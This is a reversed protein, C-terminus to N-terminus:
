FGAFCPTFDGDFEDNDRNYRLVHHHVKADEDFCTVSGPEVRAGVAEDFDPPGLTGMLRITNAPTTLLQFANGIGGPGVPVEKAADPSLLRLMGRALSPGTHEAVNGSAYLSYVLFYYADYVNEAELRARKDFAALRLRFGNYLTRDEAPAAGINLFRQYSRGDLATQRQVIRGLTQEIGDQNKPSLVYFPRPETPNQAAWVSELQPLVGSTAVFLENALSLVVHPKFEIIDTLAELVDAHAGDASLERILFNGRDLNTAADTGNFQLQALVSEALEASFTDTTRVAAVRLDDITPFSAHIFTELREVFAAYVPGFDSPQGLMSWLLGDDMELSLDQSGGFPSLFFVRERGHERFARLLPATDLAAVIGPVQVEDVLHRMSATLYQEHNNCVLTVLPRRDRGRGPLGAASEFEQSAMAYILGATSEALSAGEQSAYAGIYVADSLGDRERPDGLVLPCEETALKVCVGDSRCRSPEDLNRAYCEANTTCPPAGGEGVGTGGDGAAAPPDFRGASGGLDGGMGAGGQATGSGAVSSSLEPPDDLPSILMCSAVSGM